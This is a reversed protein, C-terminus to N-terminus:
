AVFSLADSTRRDESVAPQMPNRCQHNRRMMSPMWPWPPLTGYRPDSIGYASKCGKSSTLQGPAAHSDQWEMKYFWPREQVLCPYNYRVNFVSLIASDVLTDYTCSRKITRGLERSAHTRMRFPLHSHRFLKEEWYFYSSAHQPKGNVVQPSSGAVQCFLKWWKLKQKTINLWLKWTEM